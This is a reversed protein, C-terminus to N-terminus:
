RSFMWDDGAYRAQLRTATALEFPSLDGRVMVVNLAECFGKGLAEAVENWLVSRGLVEDLAVARRRLKARLARREPESLHLADAL